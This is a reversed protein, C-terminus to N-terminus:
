SVSHEFWWGERYARLGSSNHRLMIFHYAMYVFKGTFAMYNYYTVIRLYIYIYIYINIYMYISM